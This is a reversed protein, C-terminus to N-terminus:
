KVGGKGTVETIEFIEENTILNLHTFFTDTSELIQM